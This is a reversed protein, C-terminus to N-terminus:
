PNRGIIRDFYARGESPKFYTRINGSGRLAGFENTSERYFLKDAGRMATEAEGAFFRQASELYAAATSVGLEAAHKEFHAALLKESAFLARGERGIPTAAAIAIGGRIPHGNFLDAVGQYLSNVGSFELLFNAAAGGNVMATGVAGGRAAGADAVKQFQEECWPCLGFPDSSNCM